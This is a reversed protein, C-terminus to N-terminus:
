WQSCRFNDFHCSETCGTIFIADFHRCITETHLTRGLGRGVFNVVCISVNFDYTLTTDGGGGGGGGLHCPRKDNHCCRIGGWFPCWALEQNWNKVYVACVTGHSPKVNLGKMNVFSSSNVPACPKQSSFLVSEINRIYFYIRIYCCFIFVMYKHLLHGSRSRSILIIM